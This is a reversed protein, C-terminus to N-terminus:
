RLDLVTIPTSMCQLFSSYPGTPLDTTYWVGLQVLGLIVQSLEDTPL